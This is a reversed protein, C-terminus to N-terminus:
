QCTDELTTEPAIGFNEHCFEDDYYASGAITPTVVDLPGGNPKGPNILYVLGGAVGPFVTPAAIPVTAPSNVQLELNNIIVDAFGAAKATLKYTGPTVQLFNYRGNGDATDERQAGTTTSVLSVTAKPIVAGTPDTVTGVLTALDRQAYSICVFATVFLVTRVASVYRYM